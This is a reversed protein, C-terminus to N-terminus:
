EAGGMSQAAERLRPMAKKIAELNYATMPMSYHLAGVFMRLPGLPLAKNHQVGWEDFMSILGDIAQWLPCSQGNQDVYIPDGREDVPLTGYQAVHEIIDEIPRLTLESKVIM